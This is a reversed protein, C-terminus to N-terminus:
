KMKLHLFRANLQHIENETLSDIDSIQEAINKMEYLKNDIQELLADRQKVWDLQAELFALEEKEKTM